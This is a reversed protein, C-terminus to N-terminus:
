HKNRSIQVKFGHKSDQAVKPWSVIEEMILKNNINLLHIIENGLIVIYWWGWYNLYRGYM